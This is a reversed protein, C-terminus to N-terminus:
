TYARSAVHTMAAGEQLIMTWGTELYTLGDFEVVTWGDHRPDPAGSWEVTETLTFQQARAQAATAAQASTNIGQTSFSDLVVFGRNAISHPASAPVDFSGYVPADTASTDVVTFRNPAILENNSKVVTDAYINRGREYVVGPEIVSATDINRLMTFVGRSDFFPALWGGTAAIDSLISNRTTGITWTLPANAYVVLPEILIDGDAIGADLVLERAFVDLLSHYPATVPSSIGQDLIISRDGLSGVLPSGWSPQPRSSDSFLFKGLPWASGDGLILHPLVEHNLVDVIAAESPPLIFNSIRRPISSRADHTISIPSDFTPHLAGTMLDDVRSDYLDFRFSVQRQGVGRLDLLDAPSLTM